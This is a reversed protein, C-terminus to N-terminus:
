GKRAEDLAARVSVGYGTKTPARVCWRRSADAEISDVMSLVAADIFDMREADARLAEVEARLQDREALAQGTKVQETRVMEYLRAREEYLQRQADQRSAKEKDREVEVAALRRLEAAAKDLVPRWDDVPDLQEWLRDLEHAIDETTSM